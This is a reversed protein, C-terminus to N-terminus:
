GLFVSERQALRRDIQEQIRQRVLDSLESVFAPNTIMEDDYASTEIPEGIDIFWKTPLPILGLPGLWPWTPTIPFFPFGLMRAIPKADALMPYTEEAGVVSIPIIPARAELALKVFGGRGFRALRYRDKFLKSVGKYGEPFVLVLEDEALLRRGNDPHALVQGTKNLIMSFFPLTPFWNAVLARVLRHAPHFERVGYAIMAGDLPLVGSHNSVLLARGFNPINEVGEIDVRWYYKFILGLALAMYEAVEADYGWKDVYYDGTFRRKLFDIQMELAVQAVMAIGEWTQRDLWGSDVLEQVRALVKERVAPSANELLHEVAEILQSSSAPQLARKEEPEAQQAEAARELEVRVQEGIPLESTAAQGNSSAMIGPEAEAVSEQESVEVVTENTRSDMEEAEWARHAYCYRGGAQAPRKCRTGAKTIAECRHKQDNDSM